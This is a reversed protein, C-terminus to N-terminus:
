GSAAPSPAATLPTGDIRSVPCDAASTRTKSRAHRGGEVGEAVEGVERLDIGAARRADAGGVVDLQHRALEQGALRRLADDVGLHRIRRDGVVPRAPHREGILERRDIAGAPPDLALQADAQPDDDVHEADDRLVVRQHDGVPRDAAHAVTDDREAEGAGLLPIWGFPVCRREAPRAVCAQGAHRVGTLGLAGGAHAAREIREAGHPDAM